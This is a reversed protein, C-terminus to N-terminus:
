PPVELVNTTNSMRFNLYVAPCRTQSCTRICARASRPPLQEAVGGRTDHRAPLSPPATAAAAAAVAVAAAILVTMESTHEREGASTIAAIPAGLVTDGFGHTEMGLFDEPRLEGRTRATRVASALDASRGPLADSEPAVASAAEREAIPWTHLQSKWRQGCSARM